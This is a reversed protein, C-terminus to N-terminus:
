TRTNIETDDLEVSFPHNPSSLGSRNSETASFLEFSPQLRHLDRQAM